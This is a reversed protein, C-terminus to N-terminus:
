CINLIRCANKYLIKDREASSLNPILDIMQVLQKQTMSLLFMPWDTGFLIQDPCKDLFKRFWHQWESENAALAQFTSIDFFVNERQNAISITNEQDRAGAHALIFNVNRFQRSVKLISKPYDKETVMSSLSPGTHSLVPIKYADCLEYLPFISKDDLEFGCPPYLKLGSFGYERIAKEFLDFGEVGRRPDVGGFVMFRDPHRQKVDYHLSYIQELSLEPEGLAYGFDAILLVSKDIGAQNMNDLLVDGTNDKLGNEILRVLFQKEDEGGSPVLPEAVGALFKEPFIKHFALHAHVDIIM